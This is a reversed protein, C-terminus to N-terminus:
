VRSKLRRLEARVWLLTVAFSLSDAIPHAVWIGELGLFLPLALLLPILFLIQRTISLLFAPWARGLAQFLTAGIIQFGVTPSCIVLLRAIAVGKAILEPEPSFLGLVQGPFAMIAVFMVSSIVTAALIAARLAERVRHSNGAGYNFGAIPQFGQALGILPMFFFLFVRNLVGLIALHLDTGYYGISNNLVIALLSGAAVRTFSSSGVAFMEPLVAPYPRIDSWRIHLLSKGSLFYGTLYTFACINALVTAIAAGRIGLHLGFIFIPDLVINTGAGILMSVMAVRVNGEARVLNNSSVSYAFFFSGGIIVSLYDTAYPLVAESAGFLRLIPTLFELGLWTLVASLAALVVFSSGATREAKRQDGAGLSRSIISASGIGVVQAIALVFMQIPFCVALAALALPGAGHGVFITDALNYTSNVMMAIIAPLSYRLLLGGIPAQGLEQRRDPRADPM